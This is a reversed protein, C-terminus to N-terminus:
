EKQVTIKIETWDTRVDRLASVAGELMNALIRQSFENLKIEESDVVLVTKLM